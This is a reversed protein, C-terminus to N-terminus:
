NIILYRSPSSNSDDMIGLPWQPQRSSPFRVATCVLLLAPSAQRQWGLHGSAVGAMPRPGVELKDSPATPM